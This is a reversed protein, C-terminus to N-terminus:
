PHNCTSYPSIKKTFFLTLLILGSGIAATKVIKLLDHMSAFREINHYIGNSFLALVQPLIILWITNLFQAHWTNYNLESNFKLWYAGYWAVAIMCIDYLTLNFKNKSLM